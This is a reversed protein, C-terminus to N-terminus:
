PATSGDVRGGPKVGLFEEWDNFLATENKPTGAHIQKGMIMLPLGIKKPEPHEAKIRNFLDINQSVQKLFEENSLSKMRERGVSNYAKLVVQAEPPPNDKGEM